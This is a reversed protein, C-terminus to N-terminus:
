SFVGFRLGDIRSLIRSIGIELAVDRAVKGDHIPANALFQRAADESGFVDVADGAIMDLVTDIKALSTPVGLTEGYRAVSAAYDSIPDPMTDFSGAM